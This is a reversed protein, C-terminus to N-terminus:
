PSSSTSDGTYNALFSIQVTAIVRLPPPPYIQNAYCHIGKSLSGETYPATSDSLMRIDADGLIDIFTREDVLYIAPLSCLHNRTLNLQMVVAFTSARHLKILHTFTGTMQNSHKV